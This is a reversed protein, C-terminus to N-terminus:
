SSIRFSTVHKEVINKIFVIKGYNRIEEIVILKLAPEYNYKYAYIFTNRFHMLTTLEILTM